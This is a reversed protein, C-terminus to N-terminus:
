RQEQLLVVISAVRVTGATVHRLAPPCTVLVEFTETGTGRSVRMATELGSVATTSGLGLLPVLLLAGACGAGGAGAGM